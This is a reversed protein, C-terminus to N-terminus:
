NAKVCREASPWSAAPGAPPRAPARSRTRFGESNEPVRGPFFLCQRQQSWDWRFVRPLDSRCRIGPLSREGGLPAPFLIGEQNGSPQEQSPFAPLQPATQVRLRRYTIGSLWAPGERREQPGGDEEKKFPPSSTFISGYCAGGSGRFARGAEAVWCTPVPLPINFRSPCM